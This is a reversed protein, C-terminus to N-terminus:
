AEVLIIKAGPATAHVWEVDMSIEAGWDGQPYQDALSPYNTGGYQDVKTFFGAPEPLNFQANFHHLDSALFAPDQNVDASGNRSVIMPDDYFDLIAITMGAGNQPVGGDEIQDIGYAQRIQAPTYAGAPPTSFNIVGGLPTPTFIPEVTVSLLCRDELAELTLARRRPLLDRSTAARRFFSALRTHRM